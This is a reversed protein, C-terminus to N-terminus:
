QFVNRETFKKESYLLANHMHLYIHSKQAQQWILWHNSPFHERFRYLDSAEKLNGVTDLHVDGYIARMDDTLNKMQAQFAREERREYNIKRAMGFPDAATLWKRAPHQLFATFFLKGDESIDAKQFKALRVESKLSHTGDRLDAKYKEYFPFQGKFIVTEIRM